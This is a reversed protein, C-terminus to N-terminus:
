KAKKAFRKNVEALLEKSGLDYKNLKFIYAIELLGFLNVFMFIVFWSIQKNSAAKWLAWGKWFANWFVMPLIVAPNSFFQIVAQEM